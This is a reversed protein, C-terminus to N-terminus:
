ENVNPVNIAKAIQETLRRFQTMTLSRIITRDVGILEAYVDILSGFKGTAQATEMDEMFGITLKDPDVTFPLPTKQEESM